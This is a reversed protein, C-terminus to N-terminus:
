RAAVRQGLSLLWLTATRLVAAMILEHSLGSFVEILSEAFILSSVIELAIEHGSLADNEPCSTKCDESKDIIGLIRLYAPYSVLNINSMLLTWRINYFRDIRFKSKKVVLFFFLVEVM